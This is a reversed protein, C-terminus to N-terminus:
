KGISVNRITFSDIADADYKGDRAKINLDEFIFDSLRYQESKEVVFFRNCVFDINRMVIHNAYSLPIDKRDGLDFFQTWPRIQIFNKASGRIDEVLIYEYRQPTDPRMKLRLLNEAKNVESRRFIVNHNHIGESGCTLAAHCYGFSCDEILINTNAGNNNDKDAWPGKGGKLAIADDDVSMYCNKILVNNCVDIDVADTSPAHVPSAPSTIYLDTLRLYDCKYFHTTWFPSNIMRVGSIKVNNSNSVYLLRPRLEDMNTCKPNVERRLWFSRWYRLGNGDITGKGSITFGDMRDANILAAFYKLTQGEMRTEVVAFDSIDDSGKLTAAEELYLHTDPKFFLSGSLFTGEPIIIVGGGNSAALDIVTQIKTTQLITSDNVVGYDTISYKRGLKNIDITKSQYFWDSISTGDPFKEQGSLQMCTFISILLIIQKM